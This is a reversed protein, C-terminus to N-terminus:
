ALIACIEFEGSGLSVKDIVIMVAGISEATRSMFFTIFYTVFIKEVIFLVGLKSFLSVVPSAAFNLCSFVVSIRHVRKEDSGFLPTKLPICLSYFGERKGEILGNLSPEKLM